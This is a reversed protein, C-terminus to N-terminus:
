YTADTQARRKEARSKLISAAESRNLGKRRAMEVVRRARKYDPEATSGDEQQTRNRDGYRLVGRAKRRTLGQEEQLGTLREQRAARRDLVAQRAEDETMGTNAVQREVRQSFVSRNADMDRRRLRGLPAREEVVENSAAPTTAAAPTAVTSLPNESVNPTAQATTAEKLIYLFPQIKERLFARATSRRESPKSREM